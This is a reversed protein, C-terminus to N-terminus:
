SFIFYLYCILLTALGDRKRIDIGWCMTVKFEGTQSLHWTVVRLKRIKTLGKLDEGVEGVGIKKVWEISSIVKNVGGSHRHM